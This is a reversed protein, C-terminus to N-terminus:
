MEGHGFPVWGRKSEYKAVGVSAANASYGGRRNGTIGRKDWKLPKRPEDGTQKPKPPNM